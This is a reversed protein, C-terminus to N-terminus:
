GLGVELQQSTGAGGKESSRFIQADASSRDCDPLHSTFHEQQISLRPSRHQREGYFTELFIHDHTSTPIFAKADQLMWDRGGEKSESTDLRQQVQNEPGSGYLRKLAPPGGSGDAYQDCRQV